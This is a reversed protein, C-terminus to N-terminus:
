DLSDFYAQVRALIVQAKRKGYAQTLWDVPNRAHKYNNCGDKGHCLPIMNKAVTGPCDPLALPIWHDLALTHTGFLDNAQRGCVACCGHWYDIASQAQEITFSDPLSRKRAERRSFSLRTKTRNERQWRRKNELRRERNARGWQRGLENLKETNKIRYAKCRESHRQKNEIYYQKHYETRCTHCLSHLGDKHKPFYDLSAPYIQKCAFCRKTAVNKATINFGANRTTTFTIPHQLSNKNVSQAYSLVKAYQNANLNALNRAKVNDVNNTFVM